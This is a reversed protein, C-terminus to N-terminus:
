FEVVCRSLPVARGGLRYKYTEAGNLFDYVKMGAAISARITVLKSVIGISIGRFHPDFGNNYLYTTEGLDICFVAAAPRDDIDICMLRLMDARALGDALERFFAERRPTMFAKKDARSRRFLHMFTDMAAAADDADRVMRCVLNGAAEARRLKRRVEHRQKADLTDLYADWSEPLPMQVSVGSPSVAVQWQHGKPLSALNALASAEPRVSALELRRIGRAKLYRLLRVWLDAPPNKVAPFDCHDCLDASGMFRATPGQRMLPVVGVPHEGRTIRLLLPDGDGGFCRWWAALWPPTVFPCKWQWRPQRESWLAFLDDFSAPTIVAPSATAPNATM